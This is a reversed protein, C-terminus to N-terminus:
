NQIGAENTPLLMIECEGIEAALEAPPFLQMRRELEDARAKKKNFLPLAESVADEADQAEVLLIRNQEEDEEARTKEEAECTHVAQQHLREAVVLSVQLKAVVVQYQEIAM